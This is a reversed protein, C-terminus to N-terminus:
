QVWRKQNIYTTAHCQAISRSAINQKYFPIFGIAAAKEAMTLGQWARLAKIKGDKLGYLDWFREFTLDSPLQRAMAGERSKNVLAQVGEEFVPLNEALYKLQKTTLSANVEYHCLSGHADYGFILEGIIGPSTFSYKRVPVM